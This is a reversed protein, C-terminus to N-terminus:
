VALPLSKLGYEMSAFGSSNPTRIILERGPVCLFVFGEASNQLYEVITQANPASFAVIASWISGFTEDQVPLGDTLRQATDKEFETQLPTYFRLMEDLEVVAEVFKTYAGQNLHSKVEIVGYVSEVPIMQRGALTMLPVAEDRESIVADFEKSLLGRSDFIKGKDVSFRPPLVETLYERIIDERADGVGGPHRYSVARAIRAQLETGALEFLGAFDIPKM